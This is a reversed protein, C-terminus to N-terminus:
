KKRKKVPKRPQFLLNNRFELIDNESAFCRKPVIFASEKNIYVLFMDKIETVKYINTWPLDFSKGKSECHVGGKTFTYSFTPKKGERKANKIIKVASNLVMYLFIVCVIGFCMLYLVNVEGTSSKNKMLLIFILVALVAVLAYIWVYRLTNHKQFSMYDSKTTNVDAYIKM